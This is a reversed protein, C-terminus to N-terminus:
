AVVDPHERITSMIRANAELDIGFPKEGLLHKGSEIVDVYLRAHLNHPVACYVAEVEDQELLEHHDTTAVRLGPYNEVYWRLVEPNVDCVGVIEPRVSLDSLADWRGVAQAFERGM